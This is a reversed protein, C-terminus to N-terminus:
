LAVRETGHGILSAFAGDPRIEGHEASYFKYRRGPSAREEVIWLLEAFVFWDSVLRNVLALEVVNFAAFFRDLYDQYEQASHNGALAGTDDLRDRVGVQADPHFLAAAAAADGARLHSLYIEHRELLATEAALPGERGGTYPAGLGSRSWFLEGTIGDKGMTPFLVAIPSFIVQKTPKIMGEGLGHCFVYWDGRIEAVAQMSRVLSVRHLDEYSKKLDARTHVFPQFPISGDGKFAPTATYAYPEEPVLTELIEDVVDRYESVIHAWAVDGNHVRIDTSRASKPDTKVTM